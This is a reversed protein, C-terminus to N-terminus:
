LQEMKFGVHLWTYQNSTSAEKNLWIITNMSVPLIQGIILNLKILIDTSEKISVIGRKMGSPLMTHWGMPTIDRRWLGSNEDDM